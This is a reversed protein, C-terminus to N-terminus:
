MRVLKVQRLIKRLYDMFIQIQPDLISVWNSTGDDTM